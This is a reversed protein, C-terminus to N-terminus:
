SNHTLRYCIDTQACLDIQRTIGEVQFVNSLAIITKRLQATERVFDTKNVSNRRAQKLAQGLFYTAQTLRAFRGMKLGFATGIQVAEEPKSIQM